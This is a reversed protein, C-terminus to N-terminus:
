RGRASQADDLLDAGVDGVDIGIVPDDDGEINGAVVAAAVPYM